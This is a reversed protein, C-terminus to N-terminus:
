FILEGLGRTLLGLILALVFTYGVIFITRKGRLQRYLVGITAVCPIYFVVFITFVLIQTKNLVTLIETTGLAQFLMLMSLEKKLVGFILTTGVESPLGLIFTIPSLMHNVKNTLHYHDILGLIASGAILLPWAIIIFDKLRLWTKRLMIKLRPMQYVPIELVMGPTVEPLLRSLWTGSLAVIILNLLYITLAWNGGLYYGVLGMIITMRAACPIMTALLASIFRDRPSELIRTGMVAPVNCGYGLVAPIVAKGHLGIRHMFTDMLFAVRPLYGVDEFFALGMLFPFLYPLVIAIGGGIGEFIKTLIVTSLLEPNLQTNISQVIEEFYAVMPTEILSGVKFILNFFLIFIIALFLYGWINHMLIEDIRDRWYLQPEKITCVQEVISMSLAHREANIVEDSSRGHSLALERRCASIKDMLDPRIQKVKKEFFHDRELLKTALLHKSFPIEDNLKQTLFRKLRAIVLEVDRNGRIHKGKKSFYVMKLAAEFLSKVGKGKSAVTKVVPIGLKNSLNETDIEVGKRKAEDIMNLCLVMPIELELLQLTLELSRSIVSADIVNIIVNVRESLLYRQTELDAQDLSTLSYVGPLDIINYVRDGIRIHSRTYTVTVGPFNSTVARYGAVENFLTSKGCNPQGVLVIQPHKSGDQRKKNPIMQISQKNM